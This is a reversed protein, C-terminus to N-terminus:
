GSQKADGQKGQSSQGVSDVRVGGPGHMVFSTSCLANFCAM